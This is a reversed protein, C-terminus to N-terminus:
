SKKKPPYKKFLKQVGKSITKAVQQPNESITGTVTGRWILQKEAANYIDVILTGERYTRVQTTSTAIGGGGWYWGPGYHYGYHTTDLVVRENDDGHYTVYVDPDSKTQSLGKAQLQEDIAQVIRQNMLGSIEKHELPAWAYTKLSTFDANTDYDTNTSLDCGALPVLISALLVIGLTRLV